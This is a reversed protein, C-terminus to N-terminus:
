DLWTSQLQILTQCFGKADDNADDAADESRVHQIGSGPIPPVISAEEPYTSLFIILGTM